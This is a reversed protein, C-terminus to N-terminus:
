GFCSLNFMSPVSKGVGNDCILLISLCFLIARLTSCNDRIMNRPLRTFHRPDVQQQEMVLFAIVMITPYFVKGPQQEVFVFVFTLCVEAVATEVPKGSFVGKDVVFIFTVAEVVSCGLNM